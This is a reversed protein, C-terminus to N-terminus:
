RTTHLSLTTKQPTPMPSHRYLRERAFNTGTMAEAGIDMEYMHFPIAHRKMGANYISIDVDIPRQARWFLINLILQAV